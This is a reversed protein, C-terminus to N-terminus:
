FSRVMGAILLLIVATLVSLCVLLIMFRTVKQTLASDKSRRAFVKGYHDCVLARDKGPSFAALWGGMLVRGWDYAEIEIEIRKTENSCRPCRFKAKPNLNENM